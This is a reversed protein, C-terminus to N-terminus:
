LSEFSLFGIGDSFTASIKTDNSATQGFDVPKIELKLSMSSRSEGASLIVPRTDPNSRSDDALGGNTPM